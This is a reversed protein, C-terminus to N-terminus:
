SISKNAAVVLQRMALLGCSTHQVRYARSDHLKDSGAPSAPSAACCHLDAASWVQEELIEALLVTCAIGDCCTQRISQSLSHGAAAHQPADLGIVRASGSVTMGPAYLRIRLWDSLHGFSLHQLVSLAECCHTRFEPPRSSAM